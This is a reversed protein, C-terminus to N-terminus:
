RAREYRTLITATALVAGDLATDVAARTAGPALGLAHRLAYLRWEYRHPGHGRPPCPGGYGIRGFDNQGSIGADDSQSGEDLERLSAPIDWLLWHTFTGSPADPDDMVLAFATTGEPPHTWRLAPSVNDGDCTFRVPVPGGPVLASSMLAFAM